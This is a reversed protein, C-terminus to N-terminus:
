EVRTSHGKHFKTHNKELEGSHYLSLLKTAQKKDLDFEDILYPRVGFMNEGIDKLQNLYDYAHLKLMPHFTNEIDNEM